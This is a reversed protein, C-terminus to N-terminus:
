KGGGAWQRLQKLVERIMKFIVAVIPTGAM